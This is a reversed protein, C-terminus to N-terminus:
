CSRAQYKLGFASAELTPEQLVLQLSCVFFERSPAILVFLSRTNAPPRNGLEVHFRWEIDCGPVGQRKPFEFQKNNFARGWAHILNGMGTQTGLCFSQGVLKPEHLEFAYSVAKTSCHISSKKFSTSGQLLQTPSHLSHLIRAECLSACFM